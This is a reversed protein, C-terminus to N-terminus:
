MAVAWEWSLSMTFRGVPGTVGGPSGQEFWAEPSGSTGGTGSEDDATSAEAAGVTFPWEVLNTVGRRLM